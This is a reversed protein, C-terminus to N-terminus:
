EREECPVVGSRVFWRRYSSIPDNATLVLIVGFGFGKRTGGPDGAADLM